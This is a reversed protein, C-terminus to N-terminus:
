EEKIGNEKLRSYFKYSDACRYPIPLDNKLHLLFLDIAPYYRFYLIKELLRNQSREM